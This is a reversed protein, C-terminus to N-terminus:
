APPMEPARDLLVPARQEPGPMEGTMFVYGWGRPSSSMCLHNGSSDMALLVLVSPARAEAQPVDALTRRMADALSMGMELRLLVCRAAASRIALEGHGTCAAAGHRNDCYNGAGIVPSDGLRGPYKWSWGSTSVGSGIDGKGDRALVNVTGHIREPDRALLVFRSLKRRALLDPLDEMPVNARIRAAWERAAELTLPEEPPFGQERAFDAAGRGVLLVHPLREMVRRAVSIPHAFGQLAGVAGCARTRGDMISADLEVEGVLNPYGGRGVSHEASNEEVGRIVEEVADLACGGSRLIEMGRPLFESANRTAVILM